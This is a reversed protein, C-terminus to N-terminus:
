KKDLSYIVGSEPIMFEGKFNENNTFNSLNIKSIPGRWGQRQDLRELGEILVEEAKLQIWPDITTRVSYGNTYM